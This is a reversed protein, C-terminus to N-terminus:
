LTCSWRVDETVEPDDPVLYFGHSRRDSVVKAPVGAVTTDRPVDHLVVAGAGVRSNDGLLIDGLVKAGAGVMVNNGLTPHRKGAHKGTMGLTVGQYLMCDDGIVATGGVVVGMGHDIVFRRGITAAPHIEVGYLRRSRRMLLLALTHMGHEWLWHQRRYARVAQFGASFMVVERSSSASPDKQVMAEADERILERLSPAKPSADACSVAGQLYTAESM